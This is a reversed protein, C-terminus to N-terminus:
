QSSNRKKIADNIMGVGTEFHELIDELETETEEDPQTVISTTLIRLLEQVSIPDLEIEPDLEQPEFSGDQIVTELALNGNPLLMLHIKKTYGRPDAM